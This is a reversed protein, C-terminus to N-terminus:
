KLVLGNSEMIDKMVVVIYEVSGVGDGGVGDGGFGQEGESGGIRAGGVEEV